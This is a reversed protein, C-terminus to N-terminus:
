LHDQVRASLPGENDRGRTQTQYARSNGVELHLNRTDIPEVRERKPSNKSLKGKKYLSAGLGAPRAFEGPGKDIHPLRGLAPSNVENAGM